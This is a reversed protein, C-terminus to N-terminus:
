TLPEDPDDPEIDHVQAAVGLRGLADELTLATRLTRLDVGMTQLTVAITASMGCLVTPTGMLRAAGALSVIVHCLHSDISWMGTVDLVLGAAAADRITRLVDDVLAAATDDTIDGQLPVVIRGWLQIVPPRHPAGTQFDMNM